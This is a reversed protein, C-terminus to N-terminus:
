PRVGGYDDDVPPTATTPANRLEHEYHKRVKEPDFTLFTGGSEFHQAFVRGLAYTSAVSGACAGLVGLVPITRLLSYAAVPVSTGAMTAVLSKALQESFPVEYIAALSRVLNLQAGAVMVVDILPLPVLFTAAGVGLAHNRITRQAQERRKTTTDDTTAM